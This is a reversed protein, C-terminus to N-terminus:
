SGLLRAGHGPDSHEPMGSASFFFVDIEANQLLSEVVKPVDFAFVNHKFVPKGGLLGVAETRHRPLKCCELHICDNRHRFYSGFFGSLCSASDRNHDDNRWIGHGRSKNCTQRM